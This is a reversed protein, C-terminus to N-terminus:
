LKQVRISVLIFLRRSDRYASRSQPSWRKATNTIKAKTKAKQAVLRSQKRHATSAIIKGSHARQGGVGQRRWPYLAWTTNVMCPFFAKSRMFLRVKLFDLSMFALSSSAMNPLMPARCSITRRLRPCSPLPLFKSNPKQFCLLLSRWVNNPWDTRNEKLLRTEKIMSFLLYHKNVRYLPTWRATSKPTLFVQSPPLVHGVPPLVTFPHVLIIERLGKKWKGEKQKQKRM